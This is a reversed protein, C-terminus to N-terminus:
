KEYKQSVSVSVRVYKGMVPLLEQAALEMCEKQIRAATPAYADTSEIILEDHVQWIMRARRHDLATFIKYMALKMIDACAGQIPMNCGERGIAHLKWEYQRAYDLDFYRKRGMRTEVVGTTMAKRSMADLWKGAKAFAKRKWDNLITEAQKPTCTVGLPALEKSITDALAWQTIGYAIGYSTPKAAQRLFKFVPEKKRDLTANHADPHLAGFASRVVYLHMDDKEEASDVILKGLVEDESYDALIVMEIGSYDASCLKRGQPAIFCGRISENVSLAQLKKDQPIQQMDSSFRGTSRAGLQSFWGYVRKTEPNYKNLTGIVYSDRLKTAAIYFTYARLVPHKLGEYATIANAFSDNEESDDISLEARYDYAKGRANQMDWKLVNKALLSPNGKKDTPTVGLAGFAEYVQGLNYTVEGTIKNTRKIPKSNLNVATYGDRTVLIHNVSGSQIFLDQLARESQRVLSDFTPIMGRLAPENLAIGTYELVSTAPIISMELDYTARLGQEDILRMQDRMIDFLYVTDTLAYEFHRDELKIDPNDIFESRTEKEMPVGKYRNVLAKLSFGEPRLLGASLLKETLMTCHARKVLVNYAFAFRVDFSANHAIILKTELIRQIAKYAVQAGIQRVDIACQYTESALAIILVVDRQALLGSSEIDYAITDAKSLERVASNLQAITRIINM